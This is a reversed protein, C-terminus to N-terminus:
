LLINNEARHLMPMIPVVVASVKPRHVVFLAIVNTPVLLFAYSTDNIRSEFGLDHMPLKM